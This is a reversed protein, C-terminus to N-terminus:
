GGVLGTEVAIELFISYASLATFNVQMYNPYIQNFVENGPGIGIFPRDRIMELVAYWVNIRFNIFQYM